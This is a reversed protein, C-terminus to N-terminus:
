KVSWIEKLEETSLTKYESLMKMNDESCKAKLKWNGYGSRHHHIVEFDDCYVVKENFNLMTYFLTVEEHYLFTEEYFLKNYKDLYNKSFILYCGSLVPNKGVSHKKSIITSYLKELSNDLYKGVLTMVFKYIRLKLTFSKVYKGLDFNDQLYGIPSSSKGELSKIDPGLISFNKNEVISSFDNEIIIDSNLVHLYDVDINNDRIYRLGFNNGNAFGMNNGSSVIHINKSKLEQLIEFSNDTSANDVIVICANNGFHKQINSVCIKTDVHTNYNLILFVHNM